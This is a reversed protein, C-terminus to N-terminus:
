ESSASTPPDGPRNQSVGSTSCDMGIDNAIFRIFDRGRPFVYSRVDFDPPTGGIILLVPEPCSYSASESISRMQACDPKSPVPVGGPHYHWEGLYYGRGSNWRRKLKANLARVGRVFWTPGGKSDAPAPLAETVVAVRQGEAYRGILVGGTEHGEGEECWGIVQRLVTLPIRIGFQCNDTKRIYQFETEPLM